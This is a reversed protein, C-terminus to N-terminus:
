NGAFLNIKEIAIETMRNTSLSIFKRVDINSNDESLGKRMAALYGIRLDTDINIKKIGYKISNIIDHNTIGFANNINAGYQNCTAVDDLSVGSAGHLVLPLGDTNKNIAILRDVDLKPNKHKGKHPGHSTGIAVALSDIGTETAFQKATDPNTYIADKEDVNIADEEGALTGLEAEVSVNKNNNRIYDVVQKTLKINNELTEHSKDIMVSSFGLDIAAICSELCSGHDLHFAVPVHSIDLVAHTIAKVFERGVYKIGSESIQLIVPRNCHNAANIIAKASEMNYWNFAAIAGKTNKFIDKPTALM